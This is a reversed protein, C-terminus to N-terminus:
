QSAQLRSLSELGATTHVFVAPKLLIQKDLSRDSSTLKCSSCQSHCAHYAVLETYLADKTSSLFRQNKCGKGAMHQKAGERKGSDDHALCEQSAGSSWATHVDNRDESSASAAFASDAARHRRSRPRLGPSGGAAGMVRGLARNPVEGAASAGAHLLNGAITVPNTSHAPNLVDM